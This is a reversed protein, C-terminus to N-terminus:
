FTSAIEALVAESQLADDNTYLMFINEFPAIINKGGVYDRITSGRRLVVFQGGAAIIMQIPPSDLWKPLLMYFTYKDASNVLAIIKDAFDAMISEIYPPNAVYVGPVLRASLFNGRSGFVRDEEFVSYYKPINFNLPAAFGEYEAGYKDTLLKWTAAPAGWFQGTTCLVSDYRLLMAAIVDIEAYTALKEYLGAPFDFTFVRLNPSEASKVTLKGAPCFEIIVQQPTPAVLKWMPLHRRIRKEVMEARAKEVVASDGPYNKMGLM